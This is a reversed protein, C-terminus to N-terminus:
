ELLQAVKRCTRWNRVTMPVGLWREVGAAAKSRAIGEPAHLFFARDSLHYRESPRLAAELAALDPEKPKAALFAVHLTRPDDVEDAFPNAQLIRAFEAARLVQVAPAFGQRREIEASLREGLAAPTGQAVHFVANGSQIYTRVQSAGLSELARALEKMPLKHHGGVNIGRLLAILTPM